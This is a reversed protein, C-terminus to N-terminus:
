MRLFTGESPDDVFYKTSNQMCKCTPESLKLKEIVAACYLDIEDIVEIFPNFTLALKRDLEKTKQEYAEKTLQVEDRFKAEGNM